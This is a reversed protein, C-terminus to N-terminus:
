QFLITPNQAPNWANDGHNERPDEEPDGRDGHVLVDHLVRLDLIDTLQCAAGRTQIRRMSINWDRM